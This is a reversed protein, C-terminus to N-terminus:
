ERYGGTLEDTAKNKTIEAMVILDGCGDCSYAGTVRNRYWGVSKETGCWACRRRVMRQLSGSRSDCLRSLWGAAKAWGAACATRWGGRDSLKPDNPSERASEQIAEARDMTESVNVVILTTTNTPRHALYM